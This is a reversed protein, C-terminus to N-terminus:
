RSLNGEFVIAQGCSPCYKFRGYTDMFLRGCSPCYGLKTSFADKAKNVVIQPKQKEIIIKLYRKESSENLSEVMKEVDDLNM